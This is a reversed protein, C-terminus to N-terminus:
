KTVCVSDATREGFVMSGFYVNPFGNLRTEAEVKIRNKQGDVNLSFSLTKDTLLFGEELTVDAGDNLVGDIEYNVYTPAGSEKIIYVAKNESYCVVANSQSAFASTM